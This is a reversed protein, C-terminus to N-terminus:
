GGKLEKARAELHEGIMRVVDKVVEVAVPLATAADLNLESAVTQTARIVLRDGLEDPTLRDADIGLDGLAEASEVTPLLLRRVIERQEGSLQGGFQQRFEERSEGPPTMQNDTM